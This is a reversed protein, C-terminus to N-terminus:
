GKVQVGEHGEKGRRKIEWRKVTQRDTTGYWSLGMRVYTAVKVESIKLFVPIGVYMRSDIMCFKPPTGGPELNSLHYHENM